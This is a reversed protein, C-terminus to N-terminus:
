KTEEESTEPRLPSLLLLLYIYTHIYVSNLIVLAVQRSELGPIKVLRSVKVMM